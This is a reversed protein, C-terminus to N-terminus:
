TVSEIKEPKTDLHRLAQKVTEMVEPISAEVEPSLYAQMPQVSGISVTVLDIKPLSDVLTASEILDRLGIDHASLARPFESAFRPHIQSVTGAPKGDMTADIMIVTPYEQLYALLHFGGTGGDLLHVHPPFTEDELRRIAHVGIGEDGMLFNGIGMILVPQLEKM